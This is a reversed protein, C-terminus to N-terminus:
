DARDLARNVRTLLDRPSFPKVLYDDAGVAVGREVDSPQALATLMIVPTQATAPDARLRRCVEVGDVNPMMLDLVVVAPPEDAARELAEEGDVATRVELGASELKLVILDRIDPDDDAVLVYGVADADDAVSRGDFGRRTM